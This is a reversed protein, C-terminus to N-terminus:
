PIVSPLFFSTFLTKSYSYSPCKCLFLPFLLYRNSVINYTIDLFLVPIRFHVRDYRPEFLPSDDKNRIIM